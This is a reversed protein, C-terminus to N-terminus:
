APRISRRALRWGDDTLRYTDDYVAMMAPSPVANTDRMLVMYCMGTAMEGDVEIRLSTIVHRTNSGPGQIGQARRETVGDLIHVRGRRMDSKLPHDVAWVADETFLAVYENPDGEDALHALKMVLAQLDAHHEARSM